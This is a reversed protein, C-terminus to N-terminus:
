EVAGLKRLLAATSAVENGYEDADPVARGRGGGTIAALPTQGRKNKVNLDAGQGALLQVVTDYRMSAASHLATEGAKNATNVDSGLSLALTVAELVTSEEEMVGWDCVCVQRRTENRRADRARSEGQGAALM